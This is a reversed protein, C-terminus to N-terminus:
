QKIMFIDIDSLALLMPNQWITATFFVLGDTNRSYAGNADASIDSISTKSIDTIFFLNRRHPHLQLNGLISPGKPTM